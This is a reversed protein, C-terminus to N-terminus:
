SRELRAIYFGDTGTRHPWLTVGLADHVGGPVRVQVGRFDPHARLFADVVNRNELKRFTCTAYVLRGGPRVHKAAARMIGAQVGPFAVVQDEDIRWKLDPGRDRICM